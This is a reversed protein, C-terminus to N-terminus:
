FRHRVGLGLSTGSEFTTIKDSMLMAYLDTRKSLNYDYGV